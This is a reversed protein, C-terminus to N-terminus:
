LKRGYVFYRLLLKLRRVLTLREIEDQKTNYFDFYYEKDYFPSNRYYEWWIDFNVCYQKWPKPGNYHFIGYQLAHEIEEKTFYDLM